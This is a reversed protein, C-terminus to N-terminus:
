TEIAVSWPEMSLYGSDSDCTKGFAGEVIGLAAGRDIRGRSDMM